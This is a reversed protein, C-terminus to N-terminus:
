PLRDVFVMRAQNLGAQASSVIAPLVLVAVGLLCQMLKSM